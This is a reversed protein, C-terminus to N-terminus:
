ISTFFRYTQKLLVAKGSGFQILLPGLIVLFHHCTFRTCLIWLSAKFHWKKQNNLLFPTM